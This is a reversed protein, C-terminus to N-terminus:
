LHATQALMTEEGTQGLMTEEGTSALITEESSRVAMTTETSAFMTVESALALMTEESSRAAMTTETSAFTTENRYVSQVAFAVLAQSTFTHPSHVLRSPVVRFDTLGSGEKVLASLDGVSPRLIVIM